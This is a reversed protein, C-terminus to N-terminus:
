GLGFVAGSVGEAGHAAEPARFPIGGFKCTGNGVVVSAHLSLGQSLFCCVFACLLTAPPPPSARAAPSAMMLVACSACRGSRGAPLGPVSFCVRLLVVCRCLLRRWRLAAAQLMAARHM